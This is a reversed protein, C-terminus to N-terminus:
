KKLSMKKNKLRNKKKKIVIGEEEGKNYGYNRAIDVDSNIENNIQNKRDNQRDKENSPYLRQTMNNFKTFPMISSELGSTTQGSNYAEFFEIYKM